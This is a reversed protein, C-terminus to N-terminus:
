AVPRPFRSPTFRGAAEDVVGLYWVCVNRVHKNFEKKSLFKMLESVREADQEDDGLGLSLSKEIIVLFCLLESNNSRLGALRELDNRIGEKTSPHSLPAAKLEIVAAIDKPRISAQVDTMGWKIKLQVTGKLVVLDFKAKANGKEQDKGLKVEAHVLSTVRQKSGQPIPKDHKSDWLEVLARESFKKRLASLLTARFDEERTNELPSKAHDTLLEHIAAECSQRVDQSMANRGEAM